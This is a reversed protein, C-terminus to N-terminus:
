VVGQEIKESLNSWNTASTYATVAAQTPVYIANLHYSNFTSSQITPPTTKNIYVTLGININYCNFAFGDMSEINSGIEVRMLRDCDHFARYGIKRVADGIIVKKLLKCYTFACTGINIVGNSIIVETLNPERYFACQYISYNKGKFDKPLTIKSANGYYSLLYVEDKNIEVFVYDDVMELVSKEDLSRHVVIDSPYYTSEENDPDQPNLDYIEFIKPAELYGFDLNQLGEPIVISHLYMCSYAIAGYELERVSAPITFQIAKKRNPYVLLRTVDKNYLVGDISRYTINDEHVIINELAPFECQFESIDSAISEVNRGIIITKVCGDGEEYDGFRPTPFSQINNGIILTEVQSFKFLNYDEKITKVPYDTGNYMVTDLITLTKKLKDVAFVEAYDDIIKYVIGDTEIYINDDTAVNNNNCDWVIIADSSSAWDNNWGNPKSKAECFYVPNVDWSPYFGNYRIYKVSEPIKIISKYFNSFANREIRELNPPINFDIIKNSEGVFCSYGVSRLTSPLKISFEGFEGNFSYDAIKKVGEPINILGDNCCTGEIVDFYGKNYVDIGNITIKDYVNNM